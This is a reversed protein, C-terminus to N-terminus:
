KSLTAFFGILLAVTALGGLSDEISPKKEEPETECLEGSILKTEQPLPIPISKIEVASVKDFAPILKVKIEETIKKVDNLDDKTFLKNHAIKNRLTYLKKWRSELYNSECEVISSFYREWNSQPVYENIDSALISGDSIGKLVEATIEKTSFENFLLQSLNIFDLDYLPNNSNTNTAKNVGVESPISNVWTPGLKILTFKSYLKRMSNEIFHILPYAREAYYASIGDFVPTLTGKQNSVIIRIERLLSSLNEIDKENKKAMILLDFLETDKTEFHEGENKLSYTYVSDKYNIISAERDFGIEDVLEILSLFRKCGTFQFNKKNFLILYNVESSM